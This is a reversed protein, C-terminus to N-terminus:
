FGGRVLKVVQVMSGVASRKSNAITLSVPSTLRSGLQLRMLSGTTSNRSSIEAHHAERGSGEVNPM